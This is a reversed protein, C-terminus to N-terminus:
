TRETISVLLRAANEMQQACDAKRNQDAFIAADRLLRSIRRMAWYEHAARETALRIDAISPTAELSRTLDDRLSM